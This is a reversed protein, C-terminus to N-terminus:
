NTHISPSVGGERVEVAKGKVEVTCLRVKHLPRTPKDPPPVSLGQEKMLAALAEALAEHGAETAHALANRGLADTAELKAGRQALARAVTAHGNRAAYLLATMGTDREEANVDIVGRQRLLLEVV